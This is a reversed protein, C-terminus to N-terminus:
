SSAGPEEGPRGGSVSSRRARLTNLNAEHGARSIRYLALMVIAFGYLGWEVPIFYTALGFITEESVSGLAAGTPFEVWALLQGAVLVGLGNVAKQAFTNAAFFTGESRRGTHVESDEVVDAIM